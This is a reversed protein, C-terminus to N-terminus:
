AAAKAEARLATLARWIQLDTVQDDTFRGRRMCSCYLRAQYVRDFSTIADLNVMKANKWYTLWSKIDAQTM